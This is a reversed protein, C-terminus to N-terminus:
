DQKQKQCTACYGRIGLCHDVPSFNYRRCLEDQLREIEDVKFEILKGCRICVMHDHHEYGLANEYSTKGESRITERILGSQQFLPLTRYVTARSISEGKRKLSYYLEDANFHSNMSLVARLIIQREPTSRLGKKKIFQLFIDESSNQKEEEM